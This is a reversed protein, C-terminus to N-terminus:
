QHTPHTSVLGMTPFLRKMSDVSRDHHTLSSQQRSNSRSNISYCSRLKFVFRFPQTYLRIRLIRDKDDVLYMATRRDYPDLRQPISVRSHALCSTSDNSYREMFIDSEHARTGFCHAGAEAGPLSHSVRIYNYLSAPHMTFHNYHHRNGGLLGLAM